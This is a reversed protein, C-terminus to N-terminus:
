FGILLGRILSCPPPSKCARFLQSDKCLLSQLPVSLKPLGGDLYASSVTVVGAGLGGAIEDEMNKEMQKEVMPSSIWFLVVRATTQTM